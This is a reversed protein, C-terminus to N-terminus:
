FHFWLVKDDSLIKILYFHERIPAIFGLLGKKGVCVDSQDPVSPIEREKFFSVGLFCHSSLEFIIILKTSSVLITSLKM